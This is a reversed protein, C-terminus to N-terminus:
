VIALMRDLARKAGIRVDEPVKVVNSRLEMTGALKDLTTKKMDPCTLVGSIVHFEKGPNDKQLRYVLGEETGILFTRARSEKVYRAMQSTSLAADALEIVEARCEPHVLVVAGPHEAKAKVVHKATLRQHTNCYGPYLIIRKRTKTSVYHGLNKDPIFLIEDNPVAGVVNVANASTCCYDSEAKVAASTNVYCVVTARPYRRKWGRLDDATIMDAMPCGATGEALLVTRTPNLIAANEAMFRVACLVICDVNLRAAERALELSDGTVDAIDQIEPRQYNHAMIVANLDKKLDLIRQRLRDPSLVIAM